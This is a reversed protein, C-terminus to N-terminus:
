RRETTELELIRASITDVRQQWTNMRAVATRRDVATADNDALAPAIMGIMEDQSNGVYVLDRLEDLARIAPAIVPKGAALYEFLKTPSINRVFDNLVYPILCVDFGKVYAPLQEVPRNGLLHVNNKRQLEPFAKRAPGVLVFQYEPFREAARRLLQADLRDDLVGSFGIIPSGNFSRLEEAVLTQKLQASYYHDFDVGNPVNIIAKAWRQKSAFVQESCTVTLDAAALMRQEQAAIVADRGWGVASFEDICHYLLFSEDLNGALEVATPLYVWLIPDELGITAAAKRVWALVLRQSARNIANVSRKFPPAPPCTTIWLQDGERRTGNRFATFKKWREPYRFPLYSLPPEVYLVRNKRALLRMFQQHTIWPSDWYGPAICIIDRGEIM